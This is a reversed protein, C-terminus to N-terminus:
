RSRCADQSVELTADSSPKSCSDKRLRLSRSRHLTQWQLDLSHSTSALVQVVPTQGVEIMALIQGGDPSLALCHVPHKPGPLHRVTRDALSWVSLKIGFDSAVIVHRADPSWCAFAAGAVGQNIKCEWEPKSLSWVQLVATM